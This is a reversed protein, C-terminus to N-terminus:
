PKKWPWGWQAATDKEDYARRAAESAYREWARYDEPSMVTLRGRMKYHNTGCHQACAIEYVGEERPEFWARHISGPVADMKVRFHPLYLSHVVDVAALQVIVAAGRPVRVDNMTVIDDATNFAGDTGAYRAEWAWQRANIEIRVADPRSEARAFNWFVDHMDKTSNVVLNGDVIFLVIAAIGLPVLKSRRSTGHDPLARHGRGHRVCAIIMWAVMIAFLIGVLILTTHILWDILHGHASADRPM